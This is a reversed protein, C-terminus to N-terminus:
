KLMEFIQERTETVHYGEDNEIDVDKLTIYSAGEFLVSKNVSLINDSNIIILSAKDQADHVMIFKAM